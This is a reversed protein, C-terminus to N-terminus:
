SRRPVGTRPRRPSPGIAPLQSLAIMEDASGDAIKRAAATAAVPDAEVVARGLDRHWGMAQPAIEAPMLGQRYRSELMGEVFHHLQAFMANHGATMVLTHFRKDARHFGPIDQGEAARELEALCDAIEDREAGTAREAALAAAAPEISSRLESLELIQSARGPSNLRWRIVDSNFLEWEDQPQVVTGARRRSVVLGLTSLVGCAERVVPRSVGFRTALEDMNLVHGAPLEGGCIAQGLVELVDNKYTGGQEPEPIFRRLPHDHPMRAVFGADTM